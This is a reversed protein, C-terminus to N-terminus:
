PTRRLPCARGREAHGAHIGEAAAKEESEM